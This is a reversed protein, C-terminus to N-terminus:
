QAELHLPLTSLRHLIMRANQAWLQSSLQQLLQKFALHSPLGSKFASRTAISKLTKKAFPTWLGLSEVVLPIFSGGSAEVTAQHQSDKLLEGTAAAVGATHTARTINSPQLSSRVSVDFYTAKGHDFEPHFIDGPRSGSDGSVRQELLVNTNDQRLTHYLVDRLADHRKIRYPGHSCGLIHDGFQDLHNSCPCLLPTSPPLHPIGLWHRSATIFEPGSLALGLSSIPPAKLWSSTSTDASLTKLRAQNRLDLTSFLHHYLHNDLAKHLVSQSSLDLSQAPDNTPNILSTLVQTTPTEGPFTLEHGEALSPLVQLALSKSMNCCSVFAAPASRSASRLGLGGSNFPLTAQTWVQDSIPCQLIEGLTSRLSSDFDHLQQLIPGPPVSRLIHNIRCVGLCSRLLHMEVQPDQLDPILHHLSQVRQVLTNVSAAYFTASGWLPSGLLSVGTSLRQIDNSFEPFDQDGSPWYLECKHPNLSLGYKPGLCTIAHYLKAADSRPGVITGDDLYWFQTASDMPSSDRIDDLLRCLVLSFLLPGLPDGQQVGTTSLLQHPGFFLRNASGYSWQTWGFLEPFHEEVQHLITLRCCENFANSFDVKLLCMDAIHQHQAILHRVSHITTELGGPIGM